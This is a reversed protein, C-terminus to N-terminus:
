KLFWGAPGSGALCPSDQTGEQAHLAPTSTDQHRNMKEGGWAQKAGQAPSNQRSSLCSFSACIQGPPKDTLLEQKPAGPVSEPWGVCFLTEQGELLASSVSFCALSCLSCVGETDTDGQVPREDTSRVTFQHLRSLM